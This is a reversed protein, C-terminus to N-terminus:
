FSWKDWTCRCSFECVGIKISETGHCESCEVSEKEDLEIYLSEIESKLDSNEEQWKQLESLLNKNEQNLSTVYGKLQDISEMIEKM